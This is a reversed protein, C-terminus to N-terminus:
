DVTVYFTITNLLAAANEPKAAFSPYHVFISGRTSTPTFTKDGFQVPSTSYQFDPTSGIADSVPAGPTPDDAPAPNNCDYTIGDAGQQGSCYSTYEPIDDQVVLDKAQASGLNRVELTYKIVAGPIAKPSSTGNIPDWVVKSKKILGNKKTDEKDDPDTPFYPLTLSLGESILESNDKGTDAYVVQVTNLDNDKGANKSDVSVDINENNNDFAESAKATFDFISISTSNLEGTFSEKNVTVAIDVSDDKTLKTVTIQSGSISVETAASTVSFTPNSLDFTDKTLETSGYLLATQAIAKDAIDITYTVSANSDNKLKLNAITIETASEPLDTSQIATNNSTLKFDLKLDVDLKTEATIASQGQGNVAYSLSATNTIEIGANTGAAAHVSAGATALAGFVVPAFIKSVKM